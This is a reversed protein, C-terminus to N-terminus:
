SVGCDVNDSLVIYTDIKNHNFFELSNDSSPSGQVWYIGEKKYYHPITKYLNNVVGVKVKIALLERIVNTVKEEEGGVILVDIHRNIYKVGHHYRNKRVYIISGAVSLIAAFLSIAIPIYLSTLIKGELTTPSFDGYGVTSATVVNYYVMTIVSHMGEYSMYFYDYVATVLFLSAFLYMITNVDNNNFIFIKKFKKLYLLM